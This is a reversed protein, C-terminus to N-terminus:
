IIKSAPSLHRWNVYSSISSKSLEMINVDPMATSDLHKNNKNPSQNDSEGM